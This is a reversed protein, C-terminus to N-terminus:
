NDIVPSIAFDLLIVVKWVARGRTTQRGYKKLSGFM